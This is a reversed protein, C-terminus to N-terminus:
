SISIKMNENVFAPSNIKLTVVTLVMSVIVAAAAISIANVLGQSEIFYGMLEGCLAASSALIFAIMSTYRGSHDVMALLGMQYAVVFQLLGNIFCVAVSFFLLGTGYILGIFCLFMLAMGLVIPKLHGVRQGLWACYLAGALGSLLAFTLVTSIQSESLGQEIGIHGAFSWVATYAGFFIFLAFASLLAQWNFGSVVDKNLLENEAINVKNPLWFIAPMTLAYLFLLGYIFGSYGFQKAVLGAVVFILVAGLIMEATLKFGFGRDPDRAVSIVGVSITFLVSAGLGMIFMGTGVLGQGGQQLVVVGMGLVIYAVIATPKWPLAKMWLPAFLALLAFAGMYASILSGVQAEGLQFRIAIATLVQPFANFVLAGAASLLCAAFIAKNSSFQQEFM